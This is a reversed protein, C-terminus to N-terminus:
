AVRGCLKLLLMMDLNMDLWLCAPNLNVASLIGALPGASQFKENDILLPYKAYNQNQAQEQRASVYVDRCFPLLLDYTYALQTKGHFELLSKDTKMRQSKGGALVLGNISISFNM